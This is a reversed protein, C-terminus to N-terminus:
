DYLSVLHPPGAHSVAFVSVGHWLLHPVIFTGRFKKPKVTKWNFKAAMLRWHHSRWMFTINEPQANFFICGVLMCGYPISWHFVNSAKFIFTQSGTKLKIRCWVHRGQIHCVGQKEIKYWFLNTNTNLWKSRLVKIFYPYIGSIVVWGQCELNRM